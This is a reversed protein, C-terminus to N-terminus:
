SRLTLLFALNTLVLKSIIKLINIVNKFFISDCEQLVKAAFVIIRALGHAVPAEVRGLAHLLSLSGVAGCHCVQAGAPFFRQCVYM